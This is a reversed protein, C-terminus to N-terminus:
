ELLSLWLLLLLLFLGISLSLSASRSINENYLAIFGPLYALPALRRYRRPTKMTIKLGCAPPSCCRQPRAHPERM